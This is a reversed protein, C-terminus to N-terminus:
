PSQSASPDLVQGIVQSRNESLEGTRAVDVQMGVSESAGCDGVKTTVGDCGLVGKRVSVPSTM